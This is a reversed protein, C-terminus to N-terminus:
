FFFSIALSKNLLWLIHQLNVLDEFKVLVLRMCNESTAISRNLTRFRKNEPGCVSLYCCNELYRCNWYNTGPEVVEDLWDNTISIIAVLWSQWHKKEKQEASIGQIVLVERDLSRNAIRAQKLFWDKKLDALAYSSFTHAIQKISARNRSVLTKGFPFQKWISM